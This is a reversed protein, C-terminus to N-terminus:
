RGLVHRLATELDPHRFVYQTNSSVRTSSLLLEEAMQGMALKAAFAPLPFVTPRNLVSGLVRTFERNTVAKPAVANVPGVANSDTITHHIVGLLDDISIWSMYQKGNGIVGGLGMRFPMLMKALAGGHSSLVIGIRLQVVRIGSERAASTALEWDRCVEALFNEGSQSQETLIEDDRDGYYGIASASVFVKPKNRLQALARSLLNTGNVRSSRILEKKKETWRGSAISEGALHVIADCGELEDIDIYNRSPDWVKGRKLRVVEHGLDLLFTVLQRGVLGTSGSVLVKM